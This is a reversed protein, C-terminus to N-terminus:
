AKYGFDDDPAARDADLKELLKNVAEQDAEPLQLLNKRVTLEQQFFLTDAITAESLGARRAGKCWKRFEKKWDEWSYKERNAKVFKPAEQLEKPLREREPRTSRNDDGGRNQDDDKGGRSFLGAM